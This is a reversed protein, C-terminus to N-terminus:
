RAEAELRALLARLDALAAQNLCGACEGCRDCDPPANYCKSDSLGLATEAFVAAWKAQELLEVAAELARATTLSNDLAWDYCKSFEAEIAKKVDGDSNILDSWRQHADIMERATEAAERLEALTPQEGMM